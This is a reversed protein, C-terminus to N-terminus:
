WNQENRIYRTYQGKFKWGYENLIIGIFDNNFTCYNSVGNKECYSQMASTDLLINAPSYTNAPNHEWGNTSIVVDPNVNNIFAPILNNAGNDWGHHPATLITAKDLTGGVKRQGIPGIDASFNIVNNGYYLCSCLSWDNYNTSYYSGSSESYPSHDCNYFKLKAKGDFFDVIDGDSPRIITCEANNFMSIMDAQRQIVDASETIQAINEATIEMPLYVTAGSIDYWNPYIEIARLLGCHDQHYHSQVYYDIRRVGCNRLRDHFGTYSTIIHSDILLNKGNPFRVLQAQGSLNEGTGIGIFYVKIDANPKEDSYFTFTYNDHVIQPILYEYNTARVAIRVYADSEFIFANNLNRTALDQVYVGSSDYEKIVFYMATGTPVISSGALVHIIDDTILWQACSSNNDYAPYNNNFYGNSFVVDIATKGSQEIEARLVDDKATFSSIYGTPVSGKEIQVKSNASITTGSASVRIWLANITTDTNVSFVAYNQGSSISKYAITTTGNLLYCTVTVNFASTFSLVYNQGSELNIPNTIAYRADANAANTTGTIAIDNDEGCSYTIGKNTTNNLHTLTLLNKTSQGLKAIKEGVVKADAAQGSQTLTADLTLGGATEIQEIATAVAANVDDILDNISQAATEVDLVELIEALKNYQERVAEGATDYITGDAGIRIGLVEETLGTIDIDEGEDGSPEDETDQDVVDVNQVLGYVGMIQVFSQALSANGDVWRVRIRNNAWDVYYGGRTVTSTLADILYNQTNVGRFCIINHNANGCKCWLVVVNWNALEPITRDAFEMKTAPAALPINSILTPVIHSKAASESKSRVQVKELNKKFGYLESM